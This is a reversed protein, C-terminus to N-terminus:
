RLPMVVWLKELLIDIFEVRILLLIKMSLLLQLLLDMLYFIKKLQTLV